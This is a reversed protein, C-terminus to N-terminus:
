VFPVNIKQLDVPMTLVRTTIRVREGKMPSSDEKQSTDHELSQVDELVKIKGKDVEQSYLKRHILLSVGKNERTKLELNM